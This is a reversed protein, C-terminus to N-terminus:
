KEKTLLYILAALGLGVIAGQTFEARKQEEPLPLNSYGKQALMNRAELIRQYEEDSVKITKERMM